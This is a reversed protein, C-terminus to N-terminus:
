PRDRASALRRAKTVAAEDMGENKSVFSDHPRQFCFPRVMRTRGKRATDTGFRLGLNTDLDSALKITGYAGALKETGGTVKNTAGAIESGPPTVFAGYIPDIAQGEFLVKDERHAALLEM